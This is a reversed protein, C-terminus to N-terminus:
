ATHHKQASTAQPCRGEGARCKSEPEPKLLLSSSGHQKVPPLLHGLPARGATLWGRAPWDQQWSHHQCGLARTSSVLGCNQGVLVWEAMEM